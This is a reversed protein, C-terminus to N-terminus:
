AQWSLSTDANVDIGTQVLSEAYAPVWSRLVGVGYSLWTDWPPVGDGDLWGQTAKEAGGDSLSEGPRYCLVRGARVPFPGPGLLRQRRQCVFAAALDWEINAAMRVDGPRSTRRAWPQLNRSRLTQSTTEDTRHRHCWEMAWPRQDLPQGPM